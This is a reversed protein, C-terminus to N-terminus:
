NCPIIRPPAFGAQRGSGSDVKANLFKKFRKAFAEKKLKVLEAAKRVDREIRSVQLM